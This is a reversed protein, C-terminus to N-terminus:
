RPSTLIGRANVHIVRAYNWIARCLNRRQDRDVFEGLFISRRPNGLPRVLECRTRALVLEKPLRLSQYARRTRNATRRPRKLVHANMRLNRGAAILIVSRRLSAGKTLSRVLSAADDPVTEATQHGCRPASRGRTESCRARSGPLQYGVNERAAPAASRPIKTHLLAALPLRARRMHKEPLPRLQDAPCQAKSGAERPSPNRQAGSRRSENRLGKPPLPPFCPAPAPKM